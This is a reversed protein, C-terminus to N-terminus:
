ERMAQESFTVQYMPREPHLGAPNVRLAIGRGDIGTEGTVRASIWAARRRILPPTRRVGHWSDIGRLSIVPDRMTHLSSLKWRVPENLSRPARLASMSSGAGNRRRPTM